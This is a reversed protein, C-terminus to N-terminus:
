KSRNVKNNNNKAKKCTEEAIYNVVDSELPKKLNSNKIKPTGIKYLEPAHKIGEDILKQWIKSTLARSSIYLGKKFLHKM